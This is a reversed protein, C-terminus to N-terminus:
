EIDGHFIDKYALALGEREANTLDPRGHLSKLADRMITQEEQAAARNKAYRESTAKQEAEIVEPSRLRNEAILAWVKSIIHDEATSTDEPKGWSHRKRPPHVSELGGSRSETVEGTKAHKFRRTIGGDLAYFEYSPGHCGHGSMEVHGWKEGNVWIERDGRIPKGENYAGKAGLRPRLEIRYKAKLIDFRAEEETRTSAAAAELKPTAM